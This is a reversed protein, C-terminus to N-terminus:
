ESGLVVAAQLAEEVAEAEVVLELRRGFGVLGAFEVFRQHAHGLGILLDHADHEGGEAVLALCGIRREQRDRRNAALHQLHGHEANISAGTGDGVTLGFGAIFDGLRHGATRALHLPLGVPSQAPVRHLDIVLHVALVQDVAGLDSCADGTRQTARRRLAKGVFQEEVLLALLNGLGLAVPKRDLLPEFIARGLGQREVHELARACGFLQM